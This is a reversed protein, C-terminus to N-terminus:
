FEGSLSFRRFGTAEILCSEDIEAIGKLDAITRSVKLIRDYARPSLRLREIASRLLKEGSSSLRCFQQLERSGMRSNTRCRCDTFRQQQIKRAKIVRERIVASSEGDPAQILEEPKLQNVEVVIDIRDL